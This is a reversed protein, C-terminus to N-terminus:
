FRLGISLVEERFDNLKNSKKAMGNCLSLVCYDLGVLEKPKCTQKVNPIKLIIEKLYIVTIKSLKVLLIPSKTLALTSWDANLCIRSSRGSQDANRYGRGFSDAIKCTSGM